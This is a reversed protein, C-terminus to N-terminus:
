LFDVKGDGNVDAWRHGPREFGVSVKIQNPSMATLGGAKNLWGRSRGNPDMCIYDVRGDGDLDGFRVALDNPNPNIIPQPCLGSGSVRVAAAFTPKDQGQKYLNRWM